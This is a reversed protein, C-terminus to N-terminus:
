GKVVGLPRLKVLPKVLDAQNAMVVDIDKYALPAESLDYEAGKKGRWGKARSWRDFVIGSMASDCDEIRLRKSAETRGLRRGAGHSCSAFSAECGMGEVIYSPTGMSGPIIGMQGSKASTAGKRHVILEEGGVIESAAYNHHINVERLFSVRPIQAVIAERCAAMMRRRNEHAYELAFQMDRLYQRGATETVRLFALDRSPLMDGGVENLQQALRHYHNAIKYGLNRSGSHIMLWVAGTDSGQVEIFHNGGGLTGLNAADLRDPWVLKEKGLAERYRDFGEWDQERRHAHGEGVPVQMKISDLLTRIGKLGGLEEVQLDTELAIMGCGIDVGVANPIVADACGIVGGIPMGYGIHCDPMLAVHGRTMTHRSLDLAQRLAGDDVDDCWSRIPIRMTDDFKEWIM